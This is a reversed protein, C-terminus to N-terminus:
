SFLGALPVRLPGDSPRGKRAAFLRQFIGGGGAPRSTSYSLSPGDLFSGNCICVSDLGFLFFFIINRWVRETAPSAARSIRPTSPFMGSAMSDGGLRAPPRHLHPTVLVGAPRVGGLHRCGHILLITYVLDNIKQIFFRTRTQIKTPKAFIREDGLTQWFESSLDQSKAVGYFM